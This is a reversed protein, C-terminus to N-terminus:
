TEGSGRDTMAPVLDTGAATVPVAQGDQAKPAEGPRGYKLDDDRQKDRWNAQYGRLGRGRARACALRDLAALQQQEHSQSLEKSV